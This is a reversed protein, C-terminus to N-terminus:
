RKRQARLIVDKSKVYLPAADISIAIDIYKLAAIYDGSKYAYKAALYHLRDFRPDRPAAKKLVQFAKSYKKDKGLTEALTIYAYMFNPNLAIAKELCEVAKDHNRSNIWEIAMEYFDDAAIDDYHKM